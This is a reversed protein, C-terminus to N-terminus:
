KKDEEIIAEMERDIKDKNGSQSLIFQVNRGDYNIIVLAIFYVPERNAVDVDKKLYHILNYPVSIICGNADVITSATFISNSM